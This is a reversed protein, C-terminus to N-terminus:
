PKKPQTIRSDIDKALRLHEELTPLTTAALRKVDPDSAETARAKFEKVDKEHEDVMHQMYAKDFAVGSLKAFKDVETKQQKGLEHPLAVSKLQAVKQTQDNLKSHDDVMRQGFKKVEDNSAQKVAMQGLTVEFLNGAAADNLFKADAKDLAPARTDAKGTDAGQAPTNLAPIGMAALAAAFIIARM